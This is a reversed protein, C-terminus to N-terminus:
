LAVTTADQKADESREFTYLFNTFGRDYDSIGNQGTVKMRQDYVMKMGDAMKKAVAGGPEAWLAGLSADIEPPLDLEYVMGLYRDRDDDALVKLNRHLREALASQVLLPDDSGVLALYALVQAHLEKWYGKRHCFEHAIVHPEFYGTDRYLSVDGSLVDCSGVAFPFVVSAIGFSRIELSTVIRQGTMSAITDTLHRDVEAAVEKRPRRESTFIESIRAALQTNDEYRREMPMEDLHDIDAGFEDRFDVRRVGQREMWDILASGAYAGVAAVQVARGVPSVGFLVRTALPAVAIFDALAIPAYTAANPIRVTEM